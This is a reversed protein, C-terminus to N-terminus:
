RPPILQSLTEIASLESSLRKWREEGVQGILDRQAHEWQAIGKSLVKRGRPTLEVVVTETNVGLPRQRLKGDAVLPKLNRMVTLGDTVLERALGSVDISGFQCCVRLIGYETVGLGAPALMRDYLRTVALAVKRLAFGESTRVKQAFEQIDLQSAKRAM